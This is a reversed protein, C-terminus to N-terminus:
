IVKTKEKIKPVIIYDKDGINEANVIAEGFINEPVNIVPSLNYLINVMQVEYKTGITGDELIYTKGNGTPIWISKYYLNNYDDYNYEAQEAEELVESETLMKPESDYVKYGRRDTYQITTGQILRILSKSEKIKIPVKRMIVYGGTALFTITGSIALIRVLRKKFKEFKKPKVKENEM